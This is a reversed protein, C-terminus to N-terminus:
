APTSHIRIPGHVEHPTGLPHHLILRGLDFSVKLEYYVNGLRLITYTDIADITVRKPVKTCTRKDNISFVKMKYHIIKCEKGPKPCRTSQERPM